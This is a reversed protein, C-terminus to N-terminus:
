PNITWDQMEDWIKDVFSNGGLKKYQKYLKETNEYEIQDIECQNRYRYYTNKILTRLICRDTERRDEVETKRQFVKARFGKSVMTLFAFAGTVISFIYSIIQLVTLM